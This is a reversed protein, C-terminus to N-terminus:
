QFEALKQFIGKQHIHLFRWYEVYPENFSSAERRKLSRQTFLIFTIRLLFHYEYAKFDQTSLSKWGIHYLKVEM